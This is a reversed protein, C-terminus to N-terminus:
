VDTEWKITGSDTKISGGVSEIWAFEYRKELEEVQFKEILQNEHNM